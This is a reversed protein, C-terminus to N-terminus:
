VHYVFLWFFYLFCHYIFNEKSPGCLKLLEFKYSVEQCSPLELKKVYQGGHPLTYGCYIILNKGM